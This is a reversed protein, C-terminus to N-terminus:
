GHGVGLLLRRLPGRGHTPLMVLDAGERKVVDDIVGGPEGIGTFMEVRRGPFHTKVSTRWGRKPKSRRATQCGRSRHDCRKYALAEPGYAHVVTAEASFHQLM